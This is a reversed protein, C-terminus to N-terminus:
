SLPASGPATVLPVLLPNSEIGKTSCERYESTSPLERKGSHLLRLCVLPLLPVLGRFKGTESHGLPQPPASLPGWLTRLEQLSLSICSFLVSRHAEPM